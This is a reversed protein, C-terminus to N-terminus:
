KFLKSEAMLFNEAFERQLPPLNKPLKNAGFFRRKADEKIKGTSFAMYFMSIPRGEPHDMWERVGLLRISELEIGVEEKAVRRAADLITENRRVYAGPINWMNKFYPTKNGRFCLLIKTDEIFVLEVSTMRVLKHLALFILEPFFYKGMKKCHNALEELGSAIAKIMLDHM